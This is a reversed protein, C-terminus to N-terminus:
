RDGEFAAEAQMVLYDTMDKECDMCIGHDLEDHTCCDQCFDDTQGCLHNLAKWADRTAQLHKEYRNKDDFITACTLCRQGIVYFVTAKVKKCDNCM